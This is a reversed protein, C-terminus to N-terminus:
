FLRCILWSSGILVLRRCTTLSLNVVIVFPLLGVVAPRWCRGRACVHSNPEVKHKMLASLDDVVTHEPYNGALDRRLVALLRRGHGVCDASSVLFLVLLWDFTFIHVSSVLFFVLSWAFTFM